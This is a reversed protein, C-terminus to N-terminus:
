NVEGEQKGESVESDPAHLSQWILEAWVRRRDARLKLVYVVFFAAFAGYAMWVYLAHGGMAVFEAISDFAM